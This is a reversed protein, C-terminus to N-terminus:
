DGIVHSMENANIKTLMSPHSKADYINNPQSTQLAGDTWIKAKLASCVIVFM